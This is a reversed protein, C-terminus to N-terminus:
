QKLNTESISSFVKVKFNVTFPTILNNTNLYECKESFINYKDKKLIRWQTRLM